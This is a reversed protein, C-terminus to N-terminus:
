SSRSRASSPRPRHRRQPQARPLAQLGEQGQGARGAGCTATSRSRTPTTTTSSRPRSPRPARRTSSDGRRQLRAGALLAARRRRRRGRTAPTLTAVAEDFARRACCRARWASARRPRITSASRARDWAALAARYSPEARRASRGARAAIRGLGSTPTCRSRRAAGRSITPRAKRLDGRAAGPTPPTSRWSRTARPRARASRRWRRPPSCRRKRGEGRSSCSGCARWERALAGADVADKLAREGEDVLGLDSPPRPTPWSTTPPPAQRRRHVSACRRRAGRPDRGLDLYLRAAADRAGADAGAGRACSRSWSRRAGREAQRARDARPRPARARPVVRLQARAGQELEGRAGSLDHREYALLGLGYHPATSSAAHGGGEGADRMRAPPTASTRARSPWIPSPPPTARGARWRRSRPRGGGRSLTRGPVARPRARGAARRRRRAALAAVVKDEFGKALAVEADLVAVDGDNPDLREAVRMAEEAESVQGQM